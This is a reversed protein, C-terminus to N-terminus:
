FSDDLITAVMLTGVPISILLIFLGIPFFAIIVGVTIILLAIFLPVLVLYKM